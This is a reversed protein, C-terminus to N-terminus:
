RQAESRREEQKKREENRHSSSIFGDAVSISGDLYRVHSVCLLRIIPPIVMANLIATLLEPKTKYAAIAHIFHTCM